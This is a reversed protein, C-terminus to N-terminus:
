IEMTYGVVVVVVRILSEFATARKTAVYQKRRWRNM